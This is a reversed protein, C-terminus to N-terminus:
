NKELQHKVNTYLIGVIKTKNKVTVWNPWGKYEEHKGFPLAHCKERKPDRKIELGSVEEFKKIKEYCKQIEEPDRIFLKLDHAFGQVKYIRNEVKIGQLTKEIEILLPILQVLFAAMSPPHGEM